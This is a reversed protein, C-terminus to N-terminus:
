DQDGLERPFMELAELETKMGQDGVQKKWRNLRAIMDKMVSQYQEDTALNTTEDPDNELNFLLYEPSKTKVSGKPPLIDPNLYQILKYNQTVVGRIPYPEKVGKVGLCTFSLFIDTHVVVERGMMLPRLSRGDMDRDPEGGGIDILTPLVDTFDVLAHSMSNAEVHGPWTVIMPVHVGPEFLTYKSRPTNSGNDSVFVIVTDDKKGARELMELYRGVQLDTTWNNAEYGTLGNESASLEPSHPLSSAVFLCFPQTTDSIFTEIKQYDMVRHKKAAKENYEAGQITTKTHLIRVDWTFLDTPRTPIKHVGEKGVLGTKYGLQRMVNPMSLVGKKLGSHNPHAGNKIAHMGTYLASRAPTCVSATSYARTFRMGESALKDINPTHEPNGGYCGVSKLYQDDAVWILFNPRDSAAATSCLNALLLILLTLKM